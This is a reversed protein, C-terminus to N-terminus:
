LSYMPSEQLNWRPVESLGLQPGRLSLCCCRSWWGSGTAEAEGEEKQSGGISRSVGGHGM